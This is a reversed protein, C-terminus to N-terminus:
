AETPNTTPEEEEEERYEKATDYLKEGKTM